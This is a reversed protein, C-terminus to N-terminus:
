SRGRAKRCTRGEKTKTPLGDAYWEGFREDGKYMEYPSVSAKPKKEEEAKERLKRAEEKQAAREREKAAKEERQALLEEKPM